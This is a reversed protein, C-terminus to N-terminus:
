SHERTPKGSARPFPGQFLSFYNPCLGWLHRCYSLHSGQYSNKAPQNWILASYRDKRSFNCFCFGITLKSTVALTTLDIYM